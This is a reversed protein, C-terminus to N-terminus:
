SARRAARRPRRLHRRRRVARNGHRRRRHRRRMELPQADAAVASPTEPAIADILRDVSPAAQATGAVAVLATAAVGSGLATFFTRRDFM